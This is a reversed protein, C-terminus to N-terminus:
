RRSGAEASTEEGGALDENSEEHSQLITGGSAVSAISERKKREAANREAESINEHAAEKHLSYHKEGDIIKTYSSIVYIHINPLAHIYIFKTVKLNLSCFWTLLTNYKFPALVPSNHQNHSYRSM